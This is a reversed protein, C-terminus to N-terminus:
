FMGKVLIEKIIDEQNRRIIKLKIKTGIYDIDDTCIIRCGKGSYKTDIYVCNDKAEIEWRIVEENTTYVENGGLYIYDLGIIGSEDIIDNVKNYAHNNKKDDLSTSFIQGIICDKVGPRSFDDIHTIEFVKGSVMIKLGCDISKTLENDTFTLRRKGDENSMYVKDKLGDSYLTLNTVLMPIVYREGHFDFSYSFNCKKATFTKHSLVARKEEHYMVWWLGHWFLIDGSNVDMDWKFSFYKEDNTKQDNKSTDEVLVNIECDKTSKGVNDRKVYPVTHVTPALKNDILDNFTERAEMTGAESPNCVRNTYMRRRFIQLYDKNNLDM